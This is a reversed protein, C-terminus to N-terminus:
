LPLPDIDCNARVGAAAAATAPHTEGLSARFRGLIDEFLASAESERRLARLDMALNVGCALTTPHSSGFLERCRAFTEVDLAHAGQYDGLEYHDSALNIRAALVLAHSEGLRDSLWQLAQQDLSRARESEGLLRLTVGLDVQAGATHPHSEGYLERLGALATEGSECAARLDGTVRQDISVTLTALVTDPHHDGYRSRFRRQVDSSLDLADHHNGAKRRFSALMHSQRLLDPHDDYKLLRRATAVVNEQNAHAAVYDGLERRDLNIGGFTSLSDPHDTGYIQVLRQYTQEDLQLARGFLGSLRMSVALNHAARLTFPEEEGFNRKSKEYVTMSQELAGAFDGAVRHDAAVAGIVNLTEEQDEGLTQRYLELTRANLEAAAAYDGVVFHMFGLWYAMRLSDPHVEDGSETWATYARRALDQAGNHDGWRWLYKAENLLMDRVLENLCRDAGSALIHPYLEAYRPWHEADDPQDPDNGALLMHAGHQMAERDDPDMQAILVRQVLRHMQFSNTRHDIRALSLRGITRIAQNLRIPNRVLPDLDPHIRLARPKSLLVKSIPEPAFFACVELLRLAARDRERLGNLSVNWAAAVLEPYDQQVPAVEDGLVPRSAELLQLYEDAPMKTEARWASAQEIALPLDGLAAALRDADAVALDPGRRRLLEISEQRDFVDVRLISAIDRWAANRSTVVISGPGGKPFFPEVDEPFEANDFILLWNSYPRGIRLAELVAPVATNATSPVQLNLRGALEALASQIQAPREAPIWWILDFDQQHRYVYEVVLQSKGVGGTGHIAEPLVATTGARLRQHLSNLLESRGTFNPNRLPLNGAIPPLRSDLRQSMPSGATPASVASREPGYKSDLTGYRTIAPMNGSGPLPITDSMASETTTNLVSPSPDFVRRIQRPVPSGLAQGLRQAAIRNPGGLSLHVALEVRLYPEASPTVRPYIANRPEKVRLTLNRVAAIDHALESEVVHQVEVTRDRYSLALLRERVGHAFDFIIRTDGMTANAHIIPRLLDSTVVETLHLPGARLARGQLARIMRANLPAAALRTALTVALPSATARFRAILDDAHLFEPRDPAADGDTSILVAPMEVWGVDPGALLRTWRNLWDAGREIVPVATLGAEDRHGTLHLGVGAMRWRVGATPLASGHPNWVVDIPEICTDRWRQQPLLNVVAVTMHMAWSALVPQILRRRWADSRGHTLLFVVRQGTRDILSAPMAAADDPRAGLRLNGHVDTTMWKVGVARFASQESLMAAFASIEDAWFEMVPSDDIVLIVERRHGTPKPRQGGPPQGAPM